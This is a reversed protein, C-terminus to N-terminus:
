EWMAAMAKRPRLVASIRRRKPSPRGSSIMWWSLRTMSGAARRSPAAAGQFSGGHVVGGGEGEVVGDAAHAFSGHGGGAGQGGEGRALLVEDEFRHGVGEVGVAGADEGGVGAVHGGPAVGAEGVGHEVAQVQGVRAEVADDVGDAREDAQAVGDSAFDGAPRAGVAQEDALHADREADDADDVLGSGVDGHVGRGEAELGGVRDDQAAPAFGQLGVDGEGFGELAAAGGLPERGVGDLEDGHGVVVGHALEHAEFAQHVEDDRAAALAEDAGDGLLRAHGDDLVVLADAM